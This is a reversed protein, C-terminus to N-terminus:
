ASVAGLMDCAVRVSESEAIDGLADTFSPTRVVVAERSAFRANTGTSALFEALKAASNLHRRVVRSRGIWVEACISLESEHVVACLQRDANLTYPIMFQVTCNTWEQAAFALHYGDMFSAPLSVSDVSALMEFQPRKACDYPARAFHVCCIEHAGLEMSETATLM